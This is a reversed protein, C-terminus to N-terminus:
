METDHCTVNEQTCGFVYEPKNGPTTIPGVVITTTTAAIAPTSTVDKTESEYALTTTEVNSTTPTRAPSAYTVEPTTQIVTAM